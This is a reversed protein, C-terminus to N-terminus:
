ASRQPAALLALKMRYRDASIYMSYHPAKLVEVDKGLSRSLIRFSDAGLAVVTPARAGIAELEERFVKLNQQEFDPNTRLYAMMKGSAKEAFDKIVDTMYGGWFKTGLLAHRLKYDQAEPYDPHFNGFPREIPRSINLGALVVEPNLTSLLSDSPQDFFSIDGMGDKPKTGPPSWVAWSAYHGYEKRVAELADRTIM